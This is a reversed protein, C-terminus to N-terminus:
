CCRTATSSAARQDVLIARDGDGDFAVGIRCKGASWPPRWVPRSADLRLELNINRGNPRDGLTVVEFGMARAVAGGDDDHRRQGHGRRAARRCATRRLAAAAPRSRPLRQRAAHEARRRPPAASVTWSPDAVVAEVAREEDEGFKEGRGSFVKIGNDRHPNHSASLVVGLDFDFAGALYAVAPTPLVGATSSRPRRPMAGRALEREM